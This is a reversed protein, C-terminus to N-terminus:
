IKDPCKIRCWKCDTMQIVLALVADLGAGPFVRLGGAEGDVRLVGERTRGSWPKVLLSPHWLAVSGLVSLLAARNEVLFILSASKHNSKVGWFFGSHNIELM